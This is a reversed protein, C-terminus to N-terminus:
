NKVGSEVFGEELYEKIWMSIDPYNLPIDGIQERITKTDLVVKEGSGCMEVYFDLDPNSVILTHITGCFDGLPPRDLHSMVYTGKLKTGIGLQSEIRFTGGTQECGLKLLPIGLGVKRTVRTTTFPSEVQALFDESMGKGDDEIEVSMEDLEVSSFLLIRIHKAQASISNQVLDLIHLSIEPMNTNQLSAQSIMPLYVVM